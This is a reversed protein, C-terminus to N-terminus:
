VTDQAWQAIDTRPTPQHLMTVSGGALWVAQAAPGIEAPAAALVAVADHKALGRAVLDGAIRTAQEHVQAWTTHVPEAPEGTTMGTRQGVTRATELVRDVFRSMGDVRLSASAM